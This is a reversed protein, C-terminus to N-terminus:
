DAFSAFLGLFNACNALERCKHKLIKQDQQQESSRDFVFAVVHYFKGM